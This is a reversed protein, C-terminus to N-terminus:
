TILVIDTVHNFNQASAQNHWIITSIFGGTVMAMHGAINVANNGANITTQIITSANGAQYPDMQFSVYYFAGSTVGVTECTHSALYIGDKLV